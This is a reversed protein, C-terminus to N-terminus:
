RYGFFLALLRCVGCDSVGRFELGGDLGFRGLVARWCCGGLGLGGVM